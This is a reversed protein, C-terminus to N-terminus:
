RQLRRTIDNQLKNISNKLIKGSVNSRNVMKVVVQGPM